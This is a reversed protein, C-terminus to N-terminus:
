KQDLIIPTFKVKKGCCKRPKIPIGRRYESKKSEIYIHFKIEDIPDNIVKKEIIKISYM